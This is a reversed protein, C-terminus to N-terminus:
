NREMKRRVFRPLDVVQSREISAAKMLRLVYAHNGVAAASRADSSVLFKVNQAAFIELVRSYEGTFEDVTLEPFWWHIQNNLEFAVDREEMAAALEDLASPPLQAPTLPAPFQGINFPRALATIPARDVVNLLAQFLNSLYRSKSAPPSAAIGRTRGSLHAYVVPALRALEDTLGITGVADQIATEIAPIVMLPAHSSARVVERTQDRLDEGVRDYSNAIAVLELGCAYAARVVERLSDRGESANTYVHADYPLTNTMATSTTEGACATFSKDDDVIM